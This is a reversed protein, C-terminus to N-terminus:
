EGNSQEAGKHEGKTVKRPACAAEIQTDKLGAQKLALVQDLTCSSRGLAQAEREPGGSSHGSPAGAPERSRDAEETQLEKIRLRAWELDEPPDTPYSHLYTTYAEVTDRGSFRALNSPQAAMGGASTPAGASAQFASWRSLGLTEDLSRFFRLRNDMTTASTDSLPSPAGLKNLLSFNFTGSVYSGGSLDPQVQITVQKVISEAGVLAGAFPNVGANQTGSVIGLTADSSTIVYGHQALVGAAAALVRAPPAAYQVRTGPAYAARERQEQLQRRQAEEVARRFEACGAWPILLAFLVLAFDIRRLIM